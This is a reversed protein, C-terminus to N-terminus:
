VINEILLTVITILKEKNDQIAKIKPLESKLKQLLKLIQFEKILQGIEQIDESTIEPTSTPHGDTSDMPEQNEHQTSKAPLKPWNRNTNKDKSLLYNNPQASDPSDKIDQKQKFKQLEQLYYPCGKYNAPHPNKCNACCRTQETKNGCLHSYHSQGCTLCRPPASCTHQTHHFRQCRYCQLLTRRRYAEISIKIHFLSQLKFIAETGPENKLTVLFLPFYEKENKNEKSNRYLQSIDTVPFQLLALEQQIESIPTDKPLKRIIIKIPRDRHPRTIAHELKYDICFKKVTLHDEETQCNIKVHQSTNIVRIEKRCLTRITKLTEFTKKLNYIYIPRPQTNQLHTASKDTSPTSSADQLPNFSNSTAIPTTTNPQPKCTKKPHIFGDNDNLSTNPQTPSSFRFGAIASSV